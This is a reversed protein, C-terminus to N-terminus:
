RGDHRCETELDGEGFCVENYEEDIYVCTDICDTPLKAPDRRKLFTHYLGGVWKYDCCCIGPAQSDEPQGYALACTHYYTCKGAHNWIGGCEEGTDKTCKMCVGCEDLVAFGTPCKDHSDNSIPLDCVTCPDTDPTQGEECEPLCTLAMALGPLVALLLYSRMTRLDTVSFSTDTGATQLLRGM